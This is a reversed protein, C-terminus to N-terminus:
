KDQDLPSKVGLGGRNLVHTYIMTTKVDSHGLLEQVTRIDYGSELLHTAFSHRLTHCGVPKSIGASRAARRVEKQLASEDLHHRRVIGTRPDRSLRDSPFVYQWHWQRAASPYKRELAYPLFVAGSGSALDSQHIRLVRELHSQLPARLSDPFITIRDKAGKGDRVLIQRLHFDVDKVRLRLVEMLRLGGGYLLEAMLLYQGSLKSLLAFVEERALVTPLRVPRKARVIRFPSDLPQDLVHRYFFVLANLAQNQTSSSVKERVALHTLFASIERESLRDPPVGPHFGLFRRVWDLYAEETRISYHRCRILSRLRELCDRSSSDMM